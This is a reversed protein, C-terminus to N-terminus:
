QPVGAASSMAVDFEDRCVVARMRTSTASTDVNEDAKGAGSVGAATRLPGGTELAQRSMRPRSVNQRHFLLFAETQYDSPGRLPACAM